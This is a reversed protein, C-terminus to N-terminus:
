PAVSRRVWEEYAFPVTGYVRDPQGTCSVRYNVGGTKLYQTPYGPRTVPVVELCAKITVVADTFPNTATVERQDSPDRGPNLAYAVENLSMM